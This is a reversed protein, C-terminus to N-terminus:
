NLHSSVTIWHLTTLMDQSEVFVTDVKQVQDGVLGDEVVGEGLDDGGPLHLGLVPHQEQVHLTAVQHLLPDGPDLSVLRHLNSSEDLLVDGYTIIMKM